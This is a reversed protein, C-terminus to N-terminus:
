MADIDIIEYVNFTNSEMSMSVYKFHDKNATRDDFKPLDKVFNGPPAARLPVYSDAINKPTFVAQLM